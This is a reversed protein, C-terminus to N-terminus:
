QMVTTLSNHNVISQILIHAVPFIFIALYLILVIKNYLHITVYGSKKVSFLLSGRFFLLINCM